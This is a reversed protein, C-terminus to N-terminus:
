KRMLSIVRIMAAAGGLIFVIFKYISLYIIFKFHHKTKRLLLEGAGAAAAAGAASDGRLVEETEGAAAFPEPRAVGM